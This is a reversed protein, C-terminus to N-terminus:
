DLHFSLSLHLQNRAIMESKVKQVSMQYGLNLESFKYKFQLANYFRNQEFFSMSQQQAFFIENFSVYNINCSKSITQCIPITAQIQWRMRNQFFQEPKDIKLFRAEYQLRNRLKIKKLINQQQLGGFAIRMERQDSINGIKDVDFSRFYVLPSTLLDLHYKSSLRYYITTRISQLLPNQFRMKNQEHYNEQSRYQVDGGLTWKQDIKKNMTIRTWFEEHSQGFLKASIMMLGVILGYIRM